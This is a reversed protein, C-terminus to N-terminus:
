DRDTGESGTTPPAPQSTPARLTPTDHGRPVFVIQLDYGLANAYRQLTHLELNAGEQELQHVRSRTVGLHGAAEALTLGATARASRLLQALSRELIADTLRGLLSKATHRQPRGAPTGTRQVVGTAIEDDTFQAILTELEPTVHEVEPAPRKRTGM